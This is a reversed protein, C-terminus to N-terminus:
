SGDSVGKLASAKALLQRYRRWEAEILNHDLNQLYMEENNEGVCFKKSLDAYKCRILVCCYVILMLGFVIAVTVYASSEGGINVYGHAVLLIGTLIGITCGVSWVVLEARQCFAADSSIDFEERTM